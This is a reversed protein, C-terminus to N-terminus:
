FHCLHMVHLGTIFSQMLAYFMFPSSSSRWHQKPPCLSWLPMNYLKDPSHISVPLTPSLSLSLYCTISCLHWPFEQLTHTLATNSLSPSWWSFLLISSVHLSTHCFIGFSLRRFFSTVNSYVRNLDCWHNNSAHSSTRILQSLLCCFYLCFSSSLSKPFISLVM